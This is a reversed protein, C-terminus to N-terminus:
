RELKSSRVWRGLANVFFWLNRATQLISRRVVFQRFTIPIAHLRSGRVRMWFNLANEIELIRRLASEPVDRCGGTQARGRVVIPDPSYLIRGGHQGLSQGFLADHLGGSAVGANENSYFGGAKWFWEAKVSLNCTSGWSCEFSYDVDRPGDRLQISRLEEPSLEVQTRLRSGPHLMAGCVAAIQSDQHAGVHGRIFEPQPVDDDDVFLFISGRAIRAGCNRANAAGKRRIQVLQIKTSISALYELTAPEHRDSQDVVIVEFPSYAEAELFYKLVRCLPEERHLTPIIVSIHPAELSSRMVRESSYAGGLSERM